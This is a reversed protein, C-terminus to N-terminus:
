ESPDFGSRFIVDPSPQVEFAGIDAAAGFARRHLGGRQDSALGAANDGTDIAPSGEALAHTRTPGGNDALPLLLPDGGLTDDPLTLGGSEGVLNHSGVVTIPIESMFLALDRALMAQSGSQNDSVISSHIAYAGTTDNSGILIGGIGFPSAEDVANFAVTSNRMVLRDIIVLGAGYFGATNHSVTSNVLTLQSVGPAGGHQVIGGALMGAHNREITSSRIVAAGRVAIAGGAVDMAGGSNEVRNGSFTSDTADLGVTHVGGGQSVSEKEDDTSATAVSNDAVRGRLITVTGNSDIGGGVVHVDFGKSVSLVRNGTIASDTIEVNGPAGDATLRTLLGGGGIARAADASATNDSVESRLVRIDGAAYLGGGGAYASLGSMDHATCGTVMADVLDISGNSSAVCGGNGDVVRGRALTLAHLALTGNGTHLFIRGAGAGDITLADRSPGAIVLADVAIEIQGNQLVITDCDLSGLDVTDGSAAGGAISRLTGASGDDACTTVSVVRAPRAASTDAAPATALAGNACLSLGLGLCAALPGCRAAGDHASFFRIM